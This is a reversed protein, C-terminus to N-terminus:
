TAHKVHWTGHKTTGVIPLCIYEAETSSRFVTVQKKSSWTILNTGFFIYFGSANRKDDPNGAWDVDSFANPAVLGKQLVIGYDLTYKLYRFIRKAATFHIDTPAQM